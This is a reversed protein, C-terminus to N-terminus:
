FKRNQLNSMDGHYIEYAGAGSSPELAPPVTTQGMKRRPPNAMGLAMRSVTQYKYTELFLRIQLNPVQRVADLM